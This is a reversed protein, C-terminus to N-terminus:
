IVSFTSQVYIKSAHESFLFRNDVFKKLIKGKNQAGDFLLEIKVLVIRTVLLSISKFYKINAM